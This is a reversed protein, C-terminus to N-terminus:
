YVSQKLINIDNWLRIIQDVGTWIIVFKSMMLQFLEFNQKINKQKTKEKKEPTSISNFPFSFLTKYTLTLKFRTSCSQAAHM